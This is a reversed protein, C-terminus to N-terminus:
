RSVDVVASCRGICSFLTSVERIPSSSFTSDSIKDRSLRRAAGINKKKGNKLVFISNFFFFLISFGVKSSQTGSRSRPPDNARRTERGTMLITTRRGTNPKRSKRSISKIDHLVSNWGSAAPTVNPSKNGHNIPSNARKPLNIPKLQAPADSILIPTIGPSSISKQQPSIPGSLSKKRIHSPRASAPLRPSNPQRKVDLLNPSSSREQKGFFGRPTSMKRLAVLAGSDIEKESKCRDKPSGSTKLSESFSGSGFNSVHSFSAVEREINKGASSRSRAKTEGPFESDLGDLSLSSDPLELSPFAALKGTSSLKRGISSFKPPYYESRAGGITAKRESKGGIMMALAGSIGSGRGSFPKIDVLIKPWLIQGYGKITLAWEAEDEEHVVFESLYFSGGAAWWIKRSAQLLVLGDRAYVLFDILLYGLGPGADALNVSFTFKGSFPIKGSFNKKKEDRCIFVFDSFDSHHTDLHWHGEDSKGSAEVEVTSDRKKVKMRENKEKQNLSLDIREEMSLPRRKQSFITWSDDMERGLLCSSLCFEPSSWMSIRSGLDVM